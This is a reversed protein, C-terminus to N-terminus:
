EVLSAYWEFDEQDGQTYVERLYAHIQESAGELKLCPCHGAPGDEALVTYKLGFSEIEKLTTFRDFDHNDFAFDLEISSM